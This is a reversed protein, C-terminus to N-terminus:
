TQFSDMRKKRCSNKWNNKPVKAPHKLVVKGNQYVVLSINRGKTTKREIELDIM